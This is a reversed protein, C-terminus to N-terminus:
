IMLLGKSNIYRVETFASFFFFFLFSSGPENKWLCLTSKNSPSSALFNGGLNTAGDCGSAFGAVPKYILQKPYMNKFSDLKILIVM